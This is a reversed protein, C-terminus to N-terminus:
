ESANLDDGACFTDLGVRVILVAITFPPIGILITALVDSVATVLQLQRDASQPISLVEQVADNSCVAQRLEDAQTSLYQKAHEILTERPQPRVGTGVLEQGLRTLLDDYSATLLSEINAEM